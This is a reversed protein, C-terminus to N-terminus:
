DEPNGWQKHHHSIVMKLLYIMMNIMMNPGNEMYSMAVKFLWLTIVRQNSLMAM